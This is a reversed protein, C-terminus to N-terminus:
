LVRERVFDDQLDGGILFHKTGVVGFGCKEYFANARANHQNVGLWVSAAGEHGAGNVTAEVMRAATGSGHQSALLYCKSLEATPRTAVAVAVDDDQPDGLVLMTYGIPAGDSEALFLRRAPDALYASMRAESLHESIFEAMDPERTGPPCALRFTAAAVSHLAPADDAGAMRISTM